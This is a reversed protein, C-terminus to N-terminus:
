RIRTLDSTTLDAYLRLVERVQRDWYEWNHGGPLQRYQHPIKKAVLIEAFERNTGLFGDELGCDFYLYPLSSIDSANRAIQHLDNAERTPSNAAGFASILSPRLINWAFGPHDETRKAPDLAGSLSGAFAFVDRNKLGFKLAGYGGMSLGAIGRARRDKITRYRADVDPILERVFYSEYKDQPVTASDVYWNDHGEPTIIILEYQAAYETLNTRTIWDDHRGFLGHLLYLVPYRKNSKFYGAPLLVDYPLVKGVLESKFQITEHHVRRNEQARAAATLLTFFLLLSM